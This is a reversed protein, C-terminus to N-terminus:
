NTQSLYYTIRTLWKSPDKETTPDTIYEEVVPWNHLLGNDRIYSDIADHAKATNKYDGYYDIQIAKGGTISHSQTGAINLPETTPIAAAMDTTGTAANWNFFLGSPMGDMEMAAGQVKGFLSGLNQAYFQQVNAMDVEQRSMVYHKDAVGLEKIQFGGYEKDTARKEALGKLKKLGDEYNKTIAGKMLLNFPRMYFPTDGGEFNWSATTKGDKEVFKWTSHSVGDWGDFALETKVKEGKVSELIKQSGKGVSKPDGDWSWMAGVGATKDTITNVMDPDMDQWPSWSEWQKFDNVMNFVLGKPANIDMSEEIVLQKPSFAMLAIAIIAFLVLIAILIRLFKKLM